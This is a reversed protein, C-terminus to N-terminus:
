GPNAAPDIDMRTILGDSLTYVHLLETDSRVEGDPTCALQHVRVAVTGDEQPTIAIPDVRSGTLGFQRVWYARVADVGIERGGDMGNPWDVEPALHALVGDIDRANVARYLAEFM